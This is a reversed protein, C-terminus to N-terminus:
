AESGAKAVIGGRRAGGVFREGVLVVDVVLDMGRQPSVESHGLGGFLDDLLWLLM